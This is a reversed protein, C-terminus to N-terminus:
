HHANECEQEIMETYYIKIKKMARNVKGNKLKCRDLLKEYEDHLDYINEFSEMDRDASPLNNAFTIIQWRIEKIRNEDIKKNVEQIEETITQKLNNGVEEAIQQKLNSGVEDTIQQIM